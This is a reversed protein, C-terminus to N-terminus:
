YAITMTTVTARPREVLIFAKKNLKTSMQRITQNIIIFTITVMPRHAHTDAQVNYLLYYYICIEFCLTHTRTSQKSDPKEILYGYALHKYDLILCHRSSHRGGRLGIQNTVATSGQVVFSFVIQCVNVRSSFKITITTLRLTQKRTNKKKKKNFIM